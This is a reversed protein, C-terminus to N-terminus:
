NQKKLTIKRSKRRQTISVIITKGMTKAGRFDHETILNTFERKEQDQGLTNVLNYISKLEIKDISSLESSHIIRIFEKISPDNRTRIFKKIKEYATSFGNRVLITFLFTLTTSNYIWEIQKNLVPFQNRKIENILNVLVNDMLDITLEETRPKGEFMFSCIFIIFLLPNNVLNNLFSRGAKKATLWVTWPMLGLDVYANMSNVMKYIFFKMDISPDIHFRRSLSEIGSISILEFGNDQYFDECNNGEIFISKLRTKISPLTSLDTNFSM